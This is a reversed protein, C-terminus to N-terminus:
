VHTYVTWFLTAAAGGLRGCTQLNVDDDEISWGEAILSKKVLIIVRIGSPSAKGERCAQLNSGVIFVIHLRRSKSRPREQQRRLDPLGDTKRTM